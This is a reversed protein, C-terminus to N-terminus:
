DICTSPVPYTKKKGYAARNRFRGDTGGGDVTSIKKEKLHVTVEISVIINYISIFLSFRNSFPSKVAKSYSRDNATKNTQFIFTKIQLRQSIWTWYSKEQRIGICAFGLRGDDRSKRQRSPRLSAISERLRSM